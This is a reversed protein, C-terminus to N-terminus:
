LRGGGPLVKRLEAMAQRQGSKTQPGTLGVRFGLSFRTRSLAEGLADSDNRDFYDLRSFLILRHVNQGSLLVEALTGTVFSEIDDDEVLSQRSLWVSQELRVRTQPTVELHFSLTDSVTDRLVTGATLPDQIGGPLESDGYGFAFLSRDYRLRLNLVDTVRALEAAGIWSIDDGSSGSDLDIEGEPESDLRIEEERQRVAGGTLQFSYGRNLRHGFGLRVADVPGSLRAAGADEPTELETDTYSYSLTVDSRRGFGQELALTGTLDSVDFPTGALAEDSAATSYASYFHLRTARPWLHSAGFYVREQEFRGPVLVFAEGGLHRSADVTDIYSAGAMLDTRRTMRRDFVIGASHSIRDEGDDDQLQELEPEYGIVVGGRANPQHVFLLSPRVLYAIESDGDDFTADIEDVTEEDGPAGTDPTTTGGDNLEIRDYASAFSFTTLFFSGLGAEEVQELGPDEPDVLPPPEGPRPDDPVTGRDRPQDQSRAGPDPEDVPEGRGPAPDRAPEQTPDRAPDDAPEQARAQPQGVLLALLALLAGLLLVRDIFM